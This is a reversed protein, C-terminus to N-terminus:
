KVPLVRRCDTLCTSYHLLEEEVGDQYTMWGQTKAYAQSLQGMKESHRRLCEEQCYPTDGRKGKGTAHSASVFSFSLTLVFLVVIGKMIHSPNM